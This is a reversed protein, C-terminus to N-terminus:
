RAAAREVVMPRNPKTPQDSTPTPIGPSRLTEMLEVMTQSPVVPTKIDDWDDFKEQSV